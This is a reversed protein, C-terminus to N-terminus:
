AEPDFGRRRLWARFLAKGEPSLAIYVDEDDGDGSPIFHCYHLMTFPTSTLALCDEPDLYPVLPDIFRGVKYKYVQESPSPIVKKFLHILFERTLAEHRTDEM